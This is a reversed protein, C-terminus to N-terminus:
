GGDNAKNIDANALILLKVIEIHNKDCAILLPTRRFDDCNVQNIIQPIREKEISIYLENLRTIDNDRCANYVKNFEEEM